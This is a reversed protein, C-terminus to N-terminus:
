SILEIRNSEIQATTDIPVPEHSSQPTVISVPAPFRISTLSTQQPKTKSKHTVRDLIPLNTTPPSLSLVTYICKTESRRRSSRSSSIILRLISGRPVVGTEELRKPPRELDYQSNHKFNFFKSDSRNRNHTHTHTTTDHATSWATRTHNIYTTEPKTSDQHNRVSWAM